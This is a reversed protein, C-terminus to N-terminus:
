LKDITELLNEIRSLLNSIRKNQRFNKEEPLWQILFSRYGALYDILNNKSQFYRDNIKKRYLYRGNNLRDLLDAIDQPCGGANSLFLVTSIDNLRRRSLSVEEGVIFGNLVIKKNNKMIKQSNIKFGKSSLIYSIKKLFFPKLLFTDNSSFLLDDAYRTYTVDFENCYKLIRLDLQRFVINAISPSTIAGQPLKDNLTVINYIIDLVEENASESMKLYDQMVELILEKKISDFFNKIDVRLYYKRDTHAYLYNKYSSGKKFGYVIDPISINNLFNEQLNQQIQRLPSTRVICKLTRTGGKKPIIKEKYQSEKNTNLVSKLLNIESSIIKEYFFDKNYIYSTSIDIVGIFLTFNLTLVM